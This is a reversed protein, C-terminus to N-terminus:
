AAGSATWQVEATRGQPAGSTGASKKFNPDTELAKQQQEPPLNKHQQLWVGPKRNPHNQGANNKNANANPHAQRAAPPHAAPARQAAAPLALVVSILLGGGVRTGIM